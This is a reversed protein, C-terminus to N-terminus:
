VPDSLRERDRNVEGAMFNYGYRFERESTVGELLLGKLYIKGRFEDDLIINGFKTRIQKSPRELDVSVGMWKAWDEKTIKKGQGRIAGIKLTVDEWINGSLERPGKHKRTTSKLKILTAKKMGSLVCYLTDKHKEGFRMTWYFESAQYQVRYGNRLMVLSAVKFGEGHTGATESSDRKSSSGLDLARPSLQTKFNTFELVGDKLSIYGLLQKSSPYRAEATYSGDLDFGHIIPEFRAQNLDFTEIISDKRTM